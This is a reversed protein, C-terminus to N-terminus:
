FQVGTPINPVTVQPTNNEPSLNQQPTSIVNEQPLQPPVPISPIVVETKPLPEILTDSTEDAQINGSASKAFEEIQEEASDAVKAAQLGITDYMQALNIKGKSYTGLMNMLLELNTENFDKVTIKIQNLLEEVYERSGDENDETEIKVYLDELLKIITEKNEM